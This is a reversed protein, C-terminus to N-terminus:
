KKKWEEYRKMLEANTVFEKREYQAESETLMNKDEETLEDWWDNTQSTELIAKAEELLFDDNCLDVLQHLKAKDTAM